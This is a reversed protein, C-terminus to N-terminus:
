QQMQALPEAVLVRSHHRRGRIIWRRGAHDFCSGTGVPHTVDLLVLKAEGGDDAIVITKRRDPSLVRSGQSRIHKGNLMIRQGGNTGEEFFYVVSSSFFNLKAQHDRDCALTM